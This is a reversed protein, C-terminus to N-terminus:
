LASGSEPDFLHISQADITFTAVDGARVMHGSDVSARLRPRAAMLDKEDEIITAHIMTAETMDMHVLFTAGLDEVLAVRALVSGPGASGTGPKLAEPRVGVIIRRGIRTALAPNVGGLPLVFAGVQLAPSGEHTTVIGEMFNIPPSGIFSAVFMNM